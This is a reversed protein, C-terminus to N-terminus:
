KFHIKGKLLKGSSCQLLALALIHGKKKASWHRAKIKRVTLSATTRPWESWSRSGRGEERRRWCTGRRLSSDVPLVCQSGEPHFTFANCTDQGHCHLGCVLQSHATLIQRSTLTHWARATVTHWARASVTLRRYQWERMSGPLALHLCLLLSARLFM